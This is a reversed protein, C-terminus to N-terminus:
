PNDSACAGLALLGVDAIAYLLARECAARWGHPFRAPGTCASAAIALTELTEHGVEGLRGYSEFPLPLVTDGYRDKKEKAGAAAAVGAVTASSKYRSAHPSRITVDILFRATTYLGGM